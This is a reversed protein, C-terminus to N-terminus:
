TTAYQVLGAGYSIYDDIAPPELQIVENMASYQGIMVPRANLEFNQADQFHQADYLIDHMAFLLSQFEEAQLDDNILEGRFQIVTGPLGDRLGYIRIFPNRVNDSALPHILSHRTPIDIQAVNKCHVQYIEEVIHLLHSRHLKCFGHTDHTNLASRNRHFFSTPDVRLSTRVPYIRYAVQLPRSPFHDILSGIGGYSRSQIHSIGPIDCM